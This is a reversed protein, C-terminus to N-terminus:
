KFGLVRVTPKVGGEDSLIDQLEKIVERKLQQFADSSPDELNKSWERKMRIDVSAAAVDLTEVFSITISKKVQM